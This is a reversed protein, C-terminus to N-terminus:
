FLGPKWKAPVQINVNEDLTEDNMSGVFDYNMCALALDLGQSNCIM